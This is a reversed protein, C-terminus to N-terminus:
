LNYLRKHNGSEYGITAFHCFSKFQFLIDTTKILTLTIEIFDHVLRILVYM